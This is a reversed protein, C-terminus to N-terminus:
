ENQEESKIYINKRLLVTGITKFFIKMDLNLSINKVYYCDKKIKEDQSISNRYYAQTYGTIGPKALLRILYDNSNNIQNKVPIFPRPGILSMQGFLVNLFQPIEDISTKRLVKGVRTVRSDNESNFTSGDKLRIDPSNVKMTRFKYMKFINGNKGIRKSFYFIPGNDDIKIALGVLIILIFLFPLVILSLLFDIIRKIYNKYM